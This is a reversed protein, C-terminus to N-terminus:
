PPIYVPPAKAAGRTFQVTGLQGLRQGPALHQLSRGKGEVALLPQPQIQVAVGGVHLVVVAGVADVGALHPLNRHEGPHAPGGTKYDGSGRPRVPGPLRERRSAWRRQRSSYRSRSCGPSM